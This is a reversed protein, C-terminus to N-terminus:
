PGETLQTITIVAGTWGVVEVKTREGACIRADDHILGGATLGDGTARDLKDLDPATIKWGRGVALAKKGRAKPMPFRYEIDVRLPGDLPAAVDDHGAVDRAAQAVATRWNTHRERGSGRKGEILRPKGGILVASKDGQPAPLGLVEFEIPNM